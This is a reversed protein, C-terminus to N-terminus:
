FKQSQSCLLYCDHSLLLNVSSDLQESLRGLAIMSNVRIGPYEDNQLKSVCRVLESNLQRFSLKHVMLLSTKLTMERIVPMEDSFGRAFLPFLAEQVFKQSVKGIIQDMGSIAAFRAVKNPSSLLTTMLPELSNTVQKSDLKQGAKLALEIGKQSLHQGLAMAVAPFLKGSVYCPPLQDCISLTTM